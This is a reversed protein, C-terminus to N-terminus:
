QFTIPIDYRQVSKEDMLSRDLVQLVTCLPIYFLQPSAMPTAGAHKDDPVAATMVMAVPAGTAAQVVVAEPADVAARKLM